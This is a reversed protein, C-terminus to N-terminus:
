CCTRGSRNNNDNENNSNSGSLTAASTVTPKGSVVAAEIFGSQVKDYIMEATKLFADDVNQATKASTEMFVLGNKRAFAQGEEFSVQRKSQLDCKNGILM